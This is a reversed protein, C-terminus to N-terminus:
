ALCRAYCGGRIRATPSGIETTMLEKEIPDAVRCERGPEDRHRRSGTLRTTERASDETATAHLAANILAAQEAEHIKGIGTAPAGRRRVARTFDPTPWRTCGPPPPPDPVLRGSKAARGSVVSRAANPFPSM